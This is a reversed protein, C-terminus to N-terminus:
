QCEIYENYFHRSSVNKILQTDFCIQLSRNRIFELPIRFATYKRNHMSRTYIRGGTVASSCSPEWDGSSHRIILRCCRKQKSKSSIVRVTNARLFIYKVFTFVSCM